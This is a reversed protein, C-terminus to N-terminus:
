ELEKGTLDKYMAKLNTERSRFEDDSIMGYELMQKDAAYQLEIGKWPPDDSPKTYNDKEKWYAPMPAEKITSGNQKKNNSYDNHEWSRVTAKWDKMKNRGIMWGNGTYYDVFKDPDINNGRELCYARVDDVSPPAFRNSKRKEKKPDIESEIELEKEIEIETNGNRKVETESANCLRKVETESANCHLAKKAERHKRVRESSKLESGILKLTETLVYKTDSEQIMLGQSLLYNITVSVNEPDEDITLAMEDIFNEEIGQYELTADSDISLLQLKLYIITYTDGGAIKRLKKIKPQTFFDKMLKLWYYKKAKEM